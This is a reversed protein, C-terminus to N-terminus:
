PVYYELILQPRSTTAANGSFFKLYDSVGNDNDDTIFQLRFQTSGTMNIHSFFTNTSWARTYWNNVPANAFSGINTKGPASNFDALALGAASGFFPKRIDIRLLGLSAFPDIGVVGQKKIKLVVKTIVANDPLSGTNFSLIARYQKDAANDGLNFTTASSNMTGGTNSTETSELIYGDNTGISRFTATALVHLNATASNNANNTDTGVLSATFNITKAPQPNVTAEITLTATVGSPIAGMTWAGTSSNYTGHSPVSSVYTLGSPLPANVAGEFASYTEGYNAIAATLFVTSGPKAAAPLVSASLSLDNHTQYFYAAGQNTYNPHAMAGILATDGSLAVSSGYYDVITGDSPTLITPSASSYAWGQPSKTYIFTAGDTNSFYCYPCGIIATNESLAVSAGFAGVDTNEERLLKKTYTSIAAWGGGPKTFIYAAGQLSHSGITHGRSGILITDGSIDVSNGFYNNTGADTIIKATHASTTNWGGIPKEFIYASGQDWYAANDDYPAGILIADEFIAVSYGFDDDDAGDSATLKATYTSTTKWGGAPKIFVYASGQGDNAGNDDGYAGILVTDNSIDVSAGFYDGALGDSATLKATYASTTVWGAAPKTFIYASGQSSNTSRAGILITDGFIAVSYGFSGSDPTTLKAAFLWTTGSRTFVYASGRPADQPAGIVATNGSLAVASGFYENNTGDFAVVKQEIYILPDIVIPYAAGGEDVEIVIQSPTYHFRAELERGTADYAKLHDYRLTQGNPSAFSLGRGDESVAGPLDTLLDLHVVLNGKGRPATDILFGQQVGLSTNRYWETMAGRRYELQTETQVIEPAAAASVQDGRGMGSLNVAWQIGQAQAQAGNAGLTVALGGTAAVYNGDQSRFGQHTAALFADQLNAPMAQAKVEASYSPAVALANLTLFLALLLHIFRFKIQM